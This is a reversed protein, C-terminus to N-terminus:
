TVTVVLTSDDLLDLNTIARGPAASAVVRVDTGTLSATTITRTSSVSLVRDATVVPTSARDLLVREQGATTRLHVRGGSAAVLGAAGTQLRDVPGWDLSAWQGGAGARVAVRGDEQLHALLGHGMALLGRQVRASPLHETPVVHLGNGDAWVLRGDGDEEAAVATAGAAEVSAVPAGPAAPDVLQARGGQLFAVGRRGGAIPLGQAATGSVGSALTVKTRLDSRRVAKVEGGEVFAVWTGGAAVGATADRAVLIPSSGNAKVVWVGREPFAPAAPNATGAGSTGTAAGFDPLPITLVGSGPLAADEPVVEDPIVPLAIPVTTEEPPPPDGPQVAPLGGTVEGTADPSLSDLRAEDADTALRAGDGGGDGAVRLIVATTLVMVVLGVVAIAIRRGREM